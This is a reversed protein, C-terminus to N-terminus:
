NLGTLTAASAATKNERQFSLIQMKSKVILSSASKLRRYKLIFCYEIEFCVQTAPDDFCNQEVNANRDPPEKLCFVHEGFSCDCLLINRPTRVTSRVQNTRSVRM